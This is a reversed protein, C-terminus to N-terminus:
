HLSKLVVYFQATHAYPCLINNGIGLYYKGSKPPIFLWSYTKNLVFPIGEVHLVCYSDNGIYIRWYVAIENTGNFNLRKISINYLTGAKLEIFLKEKDRDLLITNLVEESSENSMSWNYYRKVIVYFQAMHTYPTKTNNGRYYNSIRLHYKGTKSSLFLWSYTINVGIIFDTNFIDNLDNGIYLSWYTFIGLEDIKNFSLMKISINYLTDEKLEISVQEGDWVMTNLIVENQQNISFFSYHIGIASIIIFIVAFIKIHPGTM